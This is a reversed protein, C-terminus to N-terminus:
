ARVGIESLAEELALPLEPAGSRVSGLDGPADTTNLYRWGQFARRPTPDTRILEPDLRIGCRRIGDQGRIEDLSLIRQRVRVVGKIVWYLSGGDLLEAQRKPWMRTVHRHAGGPLGSTHSERWAVLAEVSDIGVCLKVLNLPEAM